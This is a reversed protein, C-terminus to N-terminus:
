LCLIPSNQPPDLVKVPLANCSLIIPHRYYPMLDANMTVFDYKSVHSSKRLSSSLRLYWAMRESAYFQQEWPGCEDVLKCALTSLVVVGCSFSDEQQPMILRHSSPILNSGPTLSKLWWNLLDIVEPPAQASPHLSDGYAYQRTQLDIRLLTWHNGNVHLPAYITDLKNNTILHDLPQCHRSNYSRQTSRLNRLADVFHVNLVRIRRDSSIHHSIWTLGANIMDDNLWENTLFKALDKTSLLVARGLGLVLGDWPIDDWSELCEGALVRTSKDPTHKITTHLWELSNMWAKEKRSYSDLKSLLHEIWLPFRVLQDSPLCISQAGSLWASNFCQCLSPLDKLSALLTPRHQSLLHHFPTSHPDGTLTNPPATDYRATEAPHSCQISQTLLGLVSVSTDPILVSAVGDPIHRAASRAACVQVPM